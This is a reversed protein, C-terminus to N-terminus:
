KIMAEVFERQEDTLPCKGIPPIITLGCDLIHGNNRIFRGKLSLAYRSECNGYGNPEFASTTASTIIDAIQLGARKSHNEVQIDNPDLVDWRISRIPKMVELGDRMLCLYEKMSQYDTNPRRSFVIRLRAKEAGALKAALACAVTVRELLFRVLYNYLHGPQKFVPLKPHDLLTIKNSAIVCAGVPREALNQCAAVAQDHNLFRFHLDRHRKKPFLGMIDDRWKPVQRDNESSVIAAGIALWRSQGGGAKAERLKGLGEDGAEDIYAIYERVTNHAVM